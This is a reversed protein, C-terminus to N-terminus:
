KFQPLKAIYKEPNAEFKPKCGQCCFYVKKGKYEAYINKNIPKGAMLPCTTQEVAAAEISSLEEKDAAQEAKKCGTMAITDVMLMAFIVVTVRNRDM